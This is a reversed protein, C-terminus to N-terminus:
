SIATSTNPTHPRQPPPKGSSVVPNIYIYIYTHTRVCSGERLTTPEDMISYLGGGGNVDVDERGCGWFFVGSVWRAVSVGDEWVGLFCVFLLCCQSSRWVQQPSSRERPSSPFIIATAPSVSLSRRRLSSALLSVGSWRAVCTLRLLTPAETEHGGEPPNTHTRPPPQPTTPPPPPPPCAPVHRVLRHYTHMYTNLLGRVYWDRERWAWGAGGWCLMIYICVCEGVCMVVCCLLRRRGQLGNVGEQRHQVVPAGGDGKVDGVHLDTHTRRTDKEADSYVNSTVYISTHARM